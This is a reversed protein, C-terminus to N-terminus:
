DSISDESQANELGESLEKVAEDSLGSLGQAKRFLRDLVKGNKKGLEVVEDQKKFLREGKDDVVCLAVLKARLNIMNMRTDRGVGQVVSAEFSDRESGSLSRMTIVGGWEKVEVKITKRDEAKLIDEKTLLKTM